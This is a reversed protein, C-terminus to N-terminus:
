PQEESRLNSTEMAAIANTVESLKRYDDVTMSALLVGSSRDEDDLTGEILDIRRQEAKRIFEAREELKGFADWVRQSAPLKPRLEARLASMVSRALVWRDYEDDFDLCRIADVIADTANVVRHMHHLNHASSM